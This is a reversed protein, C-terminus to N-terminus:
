WQDASNVRQAAQLEGEKPRCELGVYDRYGLDYAEKL